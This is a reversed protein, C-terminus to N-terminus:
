CCKSVKDANNTTYRAILDWFLDVAYSEANAIAHITCEITNKKYMSKLKKMELIEDEPNLLTLPKMQDNSVPRNPENPCTVTLNTHTIQNIIGNQWSNVYYITDLAKQEVNSTTLVHIAVEQLTLIDLSTYRLTSRICILKNMQNYAYSNRSMITIININIPSFHQGFNAGVPIIILLTYEHYM